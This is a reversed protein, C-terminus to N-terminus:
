IRANRDITRFLEPPNDATESAGLLLSTMREPNYTLGPRAVATYRKEDRAL